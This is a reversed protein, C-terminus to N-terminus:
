EVEELRFGETEPGADPTATGEEGGLRPHLQLMPEFSRHCLLPDMGPPDSQHARHDSGCTPISLTPFRGKAETAVGDEEEDASRLETAM